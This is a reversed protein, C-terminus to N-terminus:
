MSTRPLEDNLRKRLEDPAVKGKMRLHAVQGAAHVGADTRGSGGIEVDGFQSAAMALRGQITKPTNAQAQWGSYRTGEYEILLKFTTM